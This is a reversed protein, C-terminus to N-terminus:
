FGAKAKAVVKGDIFSVSMQKHPGDHWVLVKLDPRPKAGAPVNPSRVDGPGLIGTVDSETMGTRISDFNAETVRDNTTARRGCGALTGTCVLAGILLMALKTRM